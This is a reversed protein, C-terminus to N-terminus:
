GGEEVPSSNKIYRDTSNSGMSDWGKTIVKGNQAYNCFSKPFSVPCAKSINKWPIPLAVARNSASHPAFTIASVLVWLSRSEKFVSTIFKKNEQM